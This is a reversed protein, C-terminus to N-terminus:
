SMELFRNLPSETKLRILKKKFESVLYQELTEAPATEFIVDM